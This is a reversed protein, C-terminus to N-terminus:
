SPRSAGRPQVRISYNVVCRNSKKPIGGGHYLLGDFALLRGKKPEVERVVRNAEDVFVTNGDADNVYYLLVTHPFSHDTHPKYHKQETNQPPTIYIRAVLVEQLVLGHVRCFIRPIEHFNDFHVSSGASTKLAHYFSLPRVGREDKATGEFKCKFDIMPYIKPDEAQGFIALEFFDQLREPILDDFVRIRSDIDLKSNTPM